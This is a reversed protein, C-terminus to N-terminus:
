CDVALIEAEETLYECTISDRIVASRKVDESWQSRDSCGQFGGQSRHGRLVSKGSLEDVDSGGGSCVTSGVVGRAVKSLTYVLALKHIRVPLVKILKFADWCGRCARDTAPPPPTVSRM